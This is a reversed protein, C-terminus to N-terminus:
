WRMFLCKVPIQEAQEIICDRLSLLVQLADAHNSLMSKPIDSHQPIYQDYASPRAVLEKIGHELAKIVYTCPYYKGQEFDWDMCARFMKGLNYTPSSYDPEAIQAFIPEGEVKVYIGIDYSM